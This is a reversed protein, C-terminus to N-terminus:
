SALAMGIDRSLWRGIRPWAAALTHAGMFLGLHGCPVTEMEVCGDPTSTLRAVAFLQEPSVVEDDEGALLYM